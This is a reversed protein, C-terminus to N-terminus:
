TDTELRTWGNEMAFAELLHPWMLTDLLETSLSDGTAEGAKWREYEQKIFRATGRVDNDYVVAGASLSEILSEIETDKPGNIVVLIPRRAALYDYLKGTLNGQLADTSYTLLLNVHSRHQIREAEERSLMGYDQFM